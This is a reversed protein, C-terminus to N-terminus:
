RIVTKKGNVIYLGKRNVNNVKQGQMNYVNEMQLEGNEITAIGSVEDDLVITLRAGASAEFYARFGKMTTSATAKYLKTAGNQTGLVYKGDLTGASMPAYTGQFTVGNYTDNQASTKGISTGFLKIGDAHTAATEVYVLYPYGAYFTTTNQFRLGTEASYSKFEYAKWDAGFLENMIDTTLAFPVCITNWGNKPTYKLVMSPKSGTTLEGPAATEDLVLAAAITVAQVDSTLDISNDANYVKIYADGTVAANPTYSLTILKDGNATLTENETAVKTTGIWLEATVAEDDKGAKEKVTVTASYEVYQNGTAPISKAAIVAEHEKKPALKFGEINDIANYYNVTFRLYFEGTIESEIEINHISGSTYSTKDYTYLNNWDSLDTSYDVVFTEDGYYFFGDFTLKDGITAKLLPTILTKNSSGGNGVAMYSDLNYTPYSGVTGTKVVFGTNDWGTPMTGGEFDESWMDTRTGTVAFVIPDLGANSPTVTINATKEADLAEADYLFTVTFEKTEDQAVELTSPSVTFDATNDSAISTISLTTEGTNTVTFTKHKQKGVTGFAVSAGVDSGDLKVAITAPTPEVYTGTVAMTLDPSVNAQSVTITEDYDSAVGKVFTVTIDKHGGVAIDFGTESVTFVEADSSVVSVETLPNSGDNNITFTKTTTTNKVSGFAITNSVVDSGSISMAYASAENVKLTYDQVVCYSSTPYPDAGAATAMTKHSDYYSDAAAIRMRYNGAAKGAPITFDADLTTPKATGCEGAFVIESDEFEYNQNWDVWIVTGYTYGTSYTIALNSSLGAIVGGIQSSNDQYYPSKSTDYNVVEAGSGFTVNTIGNGDVSTPAAVRYTLSFSGNIWASHEDAGSGYKSRVWVYYTNGFTLGTLTHSMSNVETASLGDPDASYDTSSVVEWASETGAATWTLTATTGQRTFSLSTPAPFQASTTFTVKSSWSSVDEGSKARLYAYYTTSESLGSLTFPKTTVDIPTADDAVFSANTDYVMEWATEEGGNTWSFTASNYTTSTAEFGTPIPIASETGAAATYSLEDISVKALYIAYRKPTDGVTISGDQYKSTAENTYGPRCTWVSSGTAAGTKEDYEFINVYGKTSSSSNYKRFKFTFTGTMAPTVIMPSSTTGQAASHGSNGLCKTGASPTFDDSGVVYDYSYTNGYTASNILLWGDAVGSTTWDEFGENVVDAWASGSGTILAFATLLLLRSKKLITFNKLM